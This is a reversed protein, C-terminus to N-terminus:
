LTKKKIQSFQRPYKTDHKKAKIFFLNNRGSGEIPLSYSQKFELKYGLTNIANKAENIEEEFNSGKMAILVGGEKVLNVCIELLINLRAVGRAIVVDYKATTEEARGYISNHPLKLLNCAENIFSIKKNNSDLFNVTTSPLMIALPIGPMGGGSGVDLITKNNLDFNSNLISLSDYFHKEYVGDEDTISTLNYKENEHCLFHFFTDFKTMKEENINYKEKFISKIM